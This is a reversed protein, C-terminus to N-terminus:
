RKRPQTPSWAAASAALEQPTQAGRGTGAERIFGGAKGAVEEFKGRGTREAMAAATIAEAQQAPTLKGPAAKEMELQAAMIRKVDVNTRRSLDVAGSLGKGQYDRVLSGSGALEEAARDGAGTRAEKSRKGAEAAAEAFAKASEVGASFTKEFHTRLTDVASRIGEVGLGVLALPAIMSKIAVGIEPSTRKIADGMRKWEQGTVGAAKAGKDGAEKMADGAQRAPATVGGLAAGTERTKAAVVGHRQELNGLSATLADVEQKAQAAGPASFPIRVEETV